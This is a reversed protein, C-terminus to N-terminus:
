FASDLLASASAFHGILGAPLAMPYNFPQHARYTARGREGLIPSSVDDDDIGLSRYDRGLKPYSKRAPVSQLHSLNFNSTRGSSSRESSFLGRPLSHLPLPTSHM